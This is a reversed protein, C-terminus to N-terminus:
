ENSAVEGAHLANAGGREHSISLFSAKNRVQQQDGNKADRHVPKQEDERGNEGRWSGRAPAQPRSSGRVAGSYHLCLSHSWKQLM